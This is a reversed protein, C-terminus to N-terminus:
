EGLGLLPLPQAAKKLPFSMNQVDITKITDLIVYQRFIDAGFSNKRTLEHLVSQTQSVHYVEILNDLLDAKGLLIASSADLVVKKM